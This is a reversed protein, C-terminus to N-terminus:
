EPRRTSSFVPLGRDEVLKSDGQVHLRTAGTQRALELGCLLGAYEAQNNTAHALFRSASLVAGDARTLIAAGASPGPRGLRRRLAIVM